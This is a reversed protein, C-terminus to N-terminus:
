PALRLLYYGEPLPRDQDLYVAVGNTGTVEGIKTFDTGGLSDRRLVEYRANAVGEWRLEPLLRISLAFGSLPDLPHTGALYEELNTSGDGDPDEAAGVRPDTVYGAGFYQLRWSNPVGDNVAYVRDFLANTSAGTIAFGSIFAQVRVETRQTLTISAGYLPSSLTPLTGDLTYRLQSGALNNVMVVQVSNTFLGGSPVIAVPGSSGPSAGPNQHLFDVEEDTLARDFVMLEDILGSFYGTGSSGEDFGGLIVRAPSSILAGPTVSSEVPSGDVYIKRGAQSDFVGVLHHWQGDNVTTQSIPVPNDPGAYFSVLGPGSFGGSANVMLFYGNQYGQAHKSIVAARDGNFGADVRVWASISFNTSVVPEVVGLDVYGNSSRDLRLANGSKGGNVFSAGTPSLVGPYTGASDGAVSGGAEDFRLHLM